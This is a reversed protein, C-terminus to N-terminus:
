NPNIEASIVTRIEKVEVSFRGTEAFRHAPEALLARRVAEHPETVGDREDFSFIATRIPDSLTVRWGKWGSGQSEVQLEWQTM